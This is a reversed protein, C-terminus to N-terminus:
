QVLWESVAEGFARFVSPATHLAAEVEKLDVRVYEHVLVNRFGGSGRLRSHLDEPLVGCDRLDALLGEYTDPTRHFHAALIHEAVHFVLGLGALLGREVTWRLSLDRALADATISQYKDLEQAVRELEALSQLILDRRISMALAGGPATRRLWRLRHDRYRSRVAQEYVAAELDSAVLLRRGTTVAEWQLLASAFRLDALDLRDTGLTTSLDAYLAAYSFGDEPLVALDVDSAAAPDRVASGFVYGLRVPHRVLVSAVMDLRRGIDSPLPKLRAHKEKLGV